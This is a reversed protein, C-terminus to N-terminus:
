GQLPQDKGGSSFLSVLWLINGGTVIFLYRRRQRLSCNSANVHAMHAHTWLGSSIFSQRDMLLSASALKRGKGGTSCGQTNEGQTREEQNDPEPPKHPTAKYVLFNRRCRPPFPFFIFGLDPGEKTSDSEFYPRGPTSGWDTVRSAWGSPARNRLTLGVARPVLRSHGWWQQTTYKGWVEISPARLRRM